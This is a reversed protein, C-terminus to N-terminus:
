KVLLERIQEVDAAIRDRLVEPDSIPTAPRQFSVLEVRIDQGYLDGNFDLLHV